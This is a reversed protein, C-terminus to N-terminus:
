RPGLVTFVTTSAHNRNKKKQGFVTVCADMHSSQNKWLETRKQRMVKLYYEKNVVCGQPLFEHHVMGNCGFFATLIVKVNSWVQSSKKSRLEEPHKWQNSQAKTKIDYGYVWSEDVTIIKKLMDPDDVDGSRHGHLM